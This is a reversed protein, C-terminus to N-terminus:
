DTRRSLLCCENGERDALVIWPVDSQGIEARTAGLGLLRKLGDANLAGPM